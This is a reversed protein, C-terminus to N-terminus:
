NKSIGEKQKKPNSSVVSAIPVQRTTLANVTACRCLSGVTLAALAPAVVAFQV